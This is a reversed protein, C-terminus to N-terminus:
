RYSRRCRKGNTQRVNPTNDGCLCFSKRSPRKAWSVDLASSEFSRSSRSRSLFILHKQQGVPRTKRLARSKPLVRM